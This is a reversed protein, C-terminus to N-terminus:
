YDGPIISEDNFFFGEWECLFAIWIQNKILLSNRLPKVDKVALKRVKTM